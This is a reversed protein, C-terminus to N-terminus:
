KAQMEVLYNLVKSKSMIDLGQFMEAVQMATEDLPSNNESRENIINAQTGNNTGTNNIQNTIYETRGLLYDTSVNLIDAAKKLYDSRMYGKKWTALNGSNGTVQECLKTVTTDQEECIKKLLEYM